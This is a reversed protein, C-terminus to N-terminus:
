QTEAKPEEAGEEKMGSGEHKMGSGEHKMGSGEQVHGMMPCMPCTMPGKEAGERMMEHSKPMMHKCMGMTSAPTDKLEDVKQQQEGTLVARADSEAKDAIAQLKSVQDETLDLEDKIAILGYPATVGTKADMMMKYRMCIAESMGCEQMRKACWDTMDEASMKARDMGQHMGGQGAGEPKTGSGMGGGQAFAMACVAVAVSAVLAAMWLKRM